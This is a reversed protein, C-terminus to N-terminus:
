DLPSEKPVATVQDAQGYLVQLCPSYERVLRGLRGEHHSRLRNRRSVSLEACPQNGGVADMGHM